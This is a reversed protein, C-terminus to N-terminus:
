KRGKRHKDFVLVGGTLAAAASMMLIGAASGTEPLVRRIENVAKMSIVPQKLTGDFYVDQTPDTDKDTFTVGNVTFEFIGKAPVSNISIQYIPNDDAIFYGEPAKTEKIYYTTFPKLSTFTLQGKDNSSQTELADECDKDSFLTFEAGALAFGRDNTKLMTLDVPVVSNVLSIVNKPETPQNFSWTYGAKELEAATVESEDLTVTGTESINLTMVLDVVQYGDPAATEQITHTGSVLGSFVVKGQDNTTVTEQGGDWKHVFTVGAIPVDGNGTNQTKHLELKFPSNTFTPINVTEFTEGTKDLRIPVVKIEDNLEYGAPAKTEQITVSGLPIVPKGNQMFFDDGSVKHAEDLKIQGNEDTQMVWTRDPTEGALDAVNDTIVTYHKLTFQAGALKDNEDDSSVKNLVLDMPYALPMDQAELVTTQNSLVPLQYIQDNLEYGQPAKIERVYYHSKSVGVTVTDSEYGSDTKKVTMVAIPNKRDQADTLESFIGYQAGTLDYNPNSQSIEPMSSIKKLQAQGTHQVDKSNVRVETGADVSVKYITPDLDFNAPAKTEKVYWTGSKVVLKNSYYKKDSYSYQITMTGAANKDAKADDETPYAKYEAGSMDLAKNEYETNAVTKYVRIWGQTIEGYVMDQIKKYGDWGNAYQNTKCVYATYGYQAPDPKAFIDKGVTTWIYDFMHQTSNNALSACTGCYAYSTLEGTWVMAATAGYKKTLVDGPGKYGYYLARRLNANNVITPASFQTGISPGANLGQGCFSHVGNSLTYIAANINGGGTPCYWTGLSYDTLTLGADLLDEGYDSDPLNRLIRNEREQEKKTNTLMVIPMDDWKSFLLGYETLFDPKIFADKDAYEELGRKKLIDQRLKKYEATDVGKAYDDLIKQEADTPSNFRGFDMHIGSKELRTKYADLDSQEGQIESFAVNLSTKQLMPLEMLYSVPKESSGEDRFAVEEGNLSISEISGSRQKAILASVTETQPVSYTGSKNQDLIINGDQDFITISGTGTLDLTLNVDSDAQVPTSIVLASLLCAASLIWALWRHIARKM